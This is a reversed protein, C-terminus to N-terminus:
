GSFKARMNQEMTDIAANAGKAEDARESGHKYYIELSDEKEPLCSLALQLLKAKAPEFDFVPDNRVYDKLIALAFKDLISELEQSNSGIVDKAMESVEYHPDTRKNNTIKFDQSNPIIPASAAGKQPPEQTHPLYNIAEPDPQSNSQSKM